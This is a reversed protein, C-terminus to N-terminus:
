LLYLLLFLVIWIVDVFHWYISAAAIGFHSHETYHGPKLSRALVAAILTLGILV